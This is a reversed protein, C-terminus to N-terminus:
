PEATVARGRREGNSLTAKKAELDVSAVGHGCRVRAPPLLGAVGKWIAGTGGHAPFRFTANPGWGAAERGRIANEVATAADAVAVREGLWRCQMETTPCGWVKLNYPRMFVDAIGTGLCRVIWEDFTRPKVTPTAAAAVSAEVLGRLCTVQEDVPLAGINNQFPYPVWAGKCRVYSVREHSCWAEEGGSLGADCLQDFYDFHSFIV